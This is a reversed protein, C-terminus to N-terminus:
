KIKKEQGIITDLRKQRELDVILADEKKYMFHMDAVDEVSPIPKKGEWKQRQERLWKRNGWNHHYM